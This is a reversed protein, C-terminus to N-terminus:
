AEGLGAARHAKHKDYGEGGLIFGAGGRQKAVAPGTDAGHPCLTPEQERVRCYIGRQRAVEGSAAGCRHTWVYQSRGPEVPQLEAAPKTTSSRGPHSGPERRERGAGRGPLFAPM